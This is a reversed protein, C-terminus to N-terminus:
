VTTLPVGSEPYRLYGMNATRVPAGPGVEPSTAFGCTPGYKHRAGFMNTKQLREADTTDMDLSKILSAENNSCLCFLRARVYTYGPEFLKKRNAGPM